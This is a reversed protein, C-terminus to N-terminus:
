GRGVPTSASAAALPWGAGALRSAVRRVDSDSPEELARERISDRIAEDSTDGDARLRDAIEAVEADTLSRHLIGLLAIYDHDPIGDPYGARLWGVVTEVPAIRDAM